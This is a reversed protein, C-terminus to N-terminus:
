IGKQAPAAKTANLDGKLVWQRQQRSKLIVTLDLGLRGGSDLGTGQPWLRRFCMDRKASRRPIEHQCLLGFRHLEGKKRKGIM